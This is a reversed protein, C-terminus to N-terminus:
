DRKRKFRQDSSAARCAEALRMARESGHVMFYSGLQDLDKFRSFHNTFCDRYDDDTLETVIDLLKVRDSAFVVIGNDDSPNGYGHFGYRIMMSRFGVLLRDHEQRKRPWKRGMPYDKEWTARYHHRFLAALESLTLRKNRPLAKWPPKRTIDAGFEKELYKIVKGDAPISSNFLRTAPSVSVRLLV